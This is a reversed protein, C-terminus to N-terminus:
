GQPKGPLAAMSHNRGNQAVTPNAAPESEQREQDALKASIYRERVDSRVQDLHAAYEAQHQELVDLLRTPQDTLTRVGIEHAASQLFFVGAVSLGLGMLLEIAGILAPRTYVGTLLQELLPRLLDYVALLVTSWTIVAAAVSLGPNHYLDVRDAHPRGVLRRWFAECFGRATPRMIQRETQGRLGRLAYIPTIINATVVAVAILAAQNAPQGLALAGNFVRQYELLAFVSGIALAAGAQIAEAILLTVVRGTDAIWALARIQWTSERYGAVKLSDLTPPPGATQQAEYEIARLDTRNLRTQQM